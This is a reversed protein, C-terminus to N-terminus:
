FFFDVKFVTLTMNQRKTSDFPSMLFINSFRPFDVLCLLRFDSSSFGGEFSDRRMEKPAACPLCSTHLTLWDTTTCRIMAMLMVYFVCIRVFVFISREVHHQEKKRWLSTRLSSSSSRLNSRGVDLQAQLKTWVQGQVLDGQHSKRKTEALATIFSDWTSQLVWSREEMGEEVEVVEM